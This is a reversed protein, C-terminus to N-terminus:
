AQPYFEKAFEELTTTPVDPYLERADLAGASEVNGVANNGRYHM